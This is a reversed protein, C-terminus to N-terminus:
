KIAVYIDVESNQSKDYRKDYLEFDGTYTRQLGSNWIYGWAEGIKDPMKGKATVVCYKTAPIVKYTMGKPISNTDTVQFGVMFSYLGMEKNEYDTYLGLFENKNVKNLIKDGLKKNEFEEWLKPIVSMFAGDKNTTRIEKGVIIMKDKEVVKTIIDEKRWRKLNPLCNKMLARAEDEKIGKEKMFPVCVDIMQEMTLDPHKFSGNEYCYICYEHNRKNNLESSYLDESMPMGCSQCYKQEM